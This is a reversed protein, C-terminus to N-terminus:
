TVKCIAPVVPPCPSIATAFQFEPGNVFLTNQLNPFTVMLRFRLGSM